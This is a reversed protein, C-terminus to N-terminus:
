KSFDNTRTNIQRWSEAATRSIKSSIEKPSPEISNETSVNQECDERTKECQIWQAIDKWINRLPCMMACMGRACRNWLYVSYQSRIVRMHGTGFANVRFRSSPNLTRSIFKLFPLASCRCFCHLVICTTSLIFRACWMAVVVTVHNWHHVCLTCKIKLNSLWANM